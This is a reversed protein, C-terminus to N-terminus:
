RCGNFESIEAQKRKEVDPYKKDFYDKQLENRQRDAWRQWEELFEEENMMMNTKKNVGCDVIM